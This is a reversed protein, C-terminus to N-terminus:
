GGLLPLHKCTHYTLALYVCHKVSDVPLSEEVSFVMARNGEFRLEHGYLERFTEVLRTQCHFYIAYENPRNAHWGLRVTSGEKSLYSPQGWKLTEEFQTIDDRHEHAVSVILGRLAWLGQRLSEPFDDFAKQIDASPERLEADLM